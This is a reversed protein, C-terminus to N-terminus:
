NWRPQAIVILLVFLLYAFAPLAIVLLLLNALVRNGNANLVYGAALVAAVAALLGAWLGFNYSSVTGDSVGWFFFFLVVAAALLDFIFLLRYFM